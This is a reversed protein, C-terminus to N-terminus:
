ARAVVRAVKLRLTVRREHHFHETQQAFTAPDTHYRAAIRLIDALARQPDDDMEITGRAAVFRYGDEVCVSAAPNRRLNVAKVREVATNMLIDDGDVLFWMVTQQPMNNPGVTALVGFRQGEALFARTLEDFM